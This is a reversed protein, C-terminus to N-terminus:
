TKVLRGKLEILYNSSPKFVVVVGRKVKKQEREREAQTWNVGGDHHQRTQTKGKEKHGKERRGKEM